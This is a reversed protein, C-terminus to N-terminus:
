ELNEHIITFWSSNWWGVERKHAQNCETQKYHKQNMVKDYERKWQPM